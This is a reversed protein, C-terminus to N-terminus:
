RGVWPGRPSYDFRNPRDDFTPALHTKLYSADRARTSPRNSVTTATWDRSWDKFTVKGLRPDVWQNRAIDAGNLDLWREADIKRDFRKSREEGSPTRYRAQWKDGRKQVHAM